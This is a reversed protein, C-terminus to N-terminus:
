KEGALVEAINLAHDKVRRYANLIDNYILSHLPTTLKDSVRELHKTRMEKIDFTISEGLTNAKSIVESREMQVSENIMKVYEGVKNHLALLEANGDSSFTLGNKDMKIRLKLINALYDSISEYEDAMRIQERGAQVVDYSVNGSLMNGLFETVEKQVIDLVEERHFLKKVLDEDNKDSTAIERLMDFMVETHRGMERVEELSQKIGIAPTDLMRVDLYTLHPIEKHPPDVVLWTVTKALVGILPIFVITNIVNFGTHTLAILATIDLVEGPKAGLGVIWEIFDIYLFFFPIIWLTGVINFIIHSYAARRANVTAGLSALFATITTGVNLGLILGASTHFDIVGSIALAITVALTASSSQVIMTAVCGVLACKLIAFYTEGGMAGFVHTLVEKVEPTKFAGGMIHLGFFVMGIGMFCMATYRLRESKVFLYVLAAVGLIPLGYKGIKLVLIWGTITTGINAGIIVGISQILTMFGSNVFGVAMVTTVSSSQVLCTVLVGVGCAKFRNGTVTGILHRMRNGAVAQMGESMHKMGLLFIGLGGVVKFIIEILLKVDVAVRRKQSFLLDVYKCSCCSKDIIQCYFHNSSKAM